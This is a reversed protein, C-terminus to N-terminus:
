VRMRATAYVCLGALLLAGIFLRETVLFPPPPAATLRAQAWADSAELEDLAVAGQYRYPQITILAFRAPSLAEVLSPSAVNRLFAHLRTLDLEAPAGFRRILRIAAHTAEMLFLDARAHEQPARSGMDFGAARPRQHYTGRWAHNLARHVDSRRAELDLPRQLADLAEVLSEMTILARESEPAPWGGRLWSALEDRRAEDMPARVLTLLRLRFTGLHRLATKSGVLALTRPDSEIRQRLSEPLIGADSAGDLSQASFELQNPRPLVDSAEREAWARAVRGAAASPEHELLGRSDPM